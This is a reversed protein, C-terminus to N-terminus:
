GDDDSFVEQLATGIIKAAVALDDETHALSLFGVEYGSPALYVGRDILKGFLAAYRRIGDPSIQEAATPIVGQGLSLWFISGHVVFHVRQKEFDFYQEL